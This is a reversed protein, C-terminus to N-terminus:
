SEDKTRRSRRWVYASVLNIVLLTLMVTRTVDPVALVQEQGNQGRIMVSLPRNWILGGNGSPLRVQFVQSRVYVQTDGATVPQGTLTQLRLLPNPM